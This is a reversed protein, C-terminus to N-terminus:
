ECGTVVMLTFLRESVSHSNHANKLEDIKKNKLAIPKNRLRIAFKWRIGFKIM